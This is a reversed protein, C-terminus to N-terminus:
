FQISLSGGLGLEQIDATQGKYGTWKPELCLITKDTLQFGLIPSVRWGMQFSNLPAFADAQTFATITQEPNFTKGKQSKTFNFIAGVKAGLIWHKLHSQYGIELPIRYTKYQNNWVTQIKSSRVQSGYTVGIIDGNQNLLVEQLVSDQTWTKEQTFDIKSWLTHYEVGSSLIFKDKWIMGVQLGYSTGWTGKEHKNRLKAAEDKSNFNLFSKNIGALLSMTWHLNKVKAPKIAPLLDAGQTLSDIGAMENTLSDNVEAPSQDTYDTLSHGLDTETLPSKKSEVPTAKSDKSAVAISSDTEQKPPHITETPRNQQNVQTTNQSDKAPTLSSKTKGQTPEKIPAADITSEPSKQANDAVVLRNNNKINGEKKQDTPTISKSNKNKINSKRSFHNEKPTAQNHNNNAPIPQADSLRKLTTNNTANTESSLTNPSPIVGNSADQKSTNIKEEKITKNPTVQQNNTPQTNNQKETVNTKTALRQTSDSQALYSWGLGVLLLLALGFGLYKFLPSKGKPPTTKGDLDDVIADWLGDVDFDSNDMKQNKFRKKYENEM